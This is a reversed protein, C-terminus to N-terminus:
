RKKFTIMMINYISKTKETTVNYAQKQKQKQNKKYRAENSM